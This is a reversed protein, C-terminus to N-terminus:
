TGLLSASLEILKFKFCNGQDTLPATRVSVDKSNPRLHSLDLVGNSFSSLAFLKQGVSKQRAVKLLKDKMSLLKDEVVPTM